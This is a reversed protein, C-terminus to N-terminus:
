SGPVRPNLGLYPERCQPSDAEGEAKARCGGRSSEKEM